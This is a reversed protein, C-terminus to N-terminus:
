TFDSAPTDPGNDTIRVNLLKGHAACVVDRSKPTAEKRKGAVSLREARPEERAIIVIITIIITFM